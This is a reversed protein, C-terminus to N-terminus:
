SQRIAEIAKCYIRNKRQMQIIDTRLAISVAAHMPYTFIKLTQVPRQAHCPPVTYLFWIYLLASQTM